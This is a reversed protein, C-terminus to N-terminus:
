HRPSVAYRARCSHDELRVLVAENLADDDVPAKATLYRVASYRDPVAARAQEVIELLFERVTTM